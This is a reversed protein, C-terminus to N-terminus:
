GITEETLSLKISSCRTIDSENIKSVRFEGAEHSTEGLFLQTNNRLNVLSIKTSSVHIPSHELMEALLEFSSM